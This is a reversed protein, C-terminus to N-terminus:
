LVKNKHFMIDRVQTVGDIFVTKGQEKRSLERLLSTLDTGLTSTVLLMCMLRLM